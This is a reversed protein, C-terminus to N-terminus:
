QLTLLNSKRQCDVTGSNPTCYSSLNPLDVGKARAKQIAVQFRALTVLDMQAGPRAYVQSGQYEGGAGYGCYTYLIFDATRDLIFYHEELDAGFLWYKAWLRVSSHTANNLSHLQYEASRWLGQELRSEWMVDVTNTTTSTSTPATFDLTQCDFCDFVKNSGHSVVWPHSVDSLEKVDFQKIQSPIYASLDDRADVACKTDTWRMPTLCGHELGCKTLGLFADDSYKFFCTTTCAAYSPDM